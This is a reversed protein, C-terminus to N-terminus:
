GSITNNISLHAEVLSTIVVLRNFWGISDKDAGVAMSNVASYGTILLRNM